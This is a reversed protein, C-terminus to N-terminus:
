HISTSNNSNTGVYKFVLLSGPSWLTTTPIIPGEKMAQVPGRVDTIVYLASGNPSFAIDRYRNESRFLEQPEGAVAKGNGDLATKIIKGGKLTTMLLNNEWGPIVDSTYLRLSSPAVTPYCTSAM